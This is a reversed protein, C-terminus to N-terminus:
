SVLSFVFYELIVEYIRMLPGESASLLKFKSQQIGRNSDGFGLLSFGKFGGKFANRGM